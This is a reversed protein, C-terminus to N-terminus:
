RDGAQNCELVNARQRSQRQGKKTGVGRHAESRKGEGRHAGETEMKQGHRKRGSAVHRRTRRRVAKETRGNRGGERPPERRKKSKEYDVM